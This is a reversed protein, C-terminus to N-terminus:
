AGDLLRLLETRDPGPMRIPELGSLSEIKDRLGPRQVIEQPLALCLV